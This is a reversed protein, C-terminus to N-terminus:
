LLFQCLAVDLVALSIKVLEEGVALDDGGDIM